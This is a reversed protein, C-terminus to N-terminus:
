EVLIEQELFRQHQFVQNRIKAVIEDTSHLVKQTPKQFSEKKNNKLKKSYEKFLEDYNAPVYFSASFKEKFKLYEDLGVFDYDSFVLVEKPAIKDLVIKGVRGYTHLFIYNKPIVREAHLFSYLNEVFCLKECILNRNKLSTSFFDFNKTYYSLDVEQNGIIIKQFGRLLVVGNSETSRSKSDRLSRINTARNIEGTVEQCNDEIYQEFYERENENLKISGRSWTGELLIVKSEFFNQFYNTKKVGEPISSCNIKGMRLRTLFNYDTVNM